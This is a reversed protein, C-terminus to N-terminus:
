RCSIATKFLDTIQAFRNPRRASMYDLQLPYGSQFPVTRFGQEPERYERQVPESVSRKNGFHAELCHHLATYTTEPHKIMRM